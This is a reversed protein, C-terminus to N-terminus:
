VQGSLQRFGTSFVIDRSHTQCSLSLRLRRSVTGPRAINNNIEPAASKAIPLLRWQTTPAPAQASSLKSMNSSLSRRHQLERGQARPSCFSAPVSARHSALSLRLALRRTTRSRAKKKKRGFNTPKTPSCADDCTMEGDCSGITMATRMMLGRRRDRCEASQTSPPLLSLLSPIPRQRRRGRHDEPRSGVDPEDPELPSDPSTSLSSLAAPTPPSSLSASCVSRRDGREGGNWLM